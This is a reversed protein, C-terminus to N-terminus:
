RKKRPRELLTLPAGGQYYREIALGAAATVEAHEGLTSLFVPIHRLRRNIATENVYREVAARLREGRYLIDGSLVIADLELMNLLNVLGVGLAAQEGLLRQCVVDGGHVLDVFDKWTELRPHAAQARGLVNPVSAYLEVCGRLGCECRPGRFDISTHGIEHGFGRWGAYIEDGHVIGGGVGNEVVLLVFSGFDRGRGYVREAMTLAQSNNALFVRQGFAGALEDCIRVGNWLAFHPPNLVAGAQADVPGPTSIGLWLFRGRSPRKGGLVRLLARKIDLVAREEVGVGRGAAALGGTQRQLGGPGAEAVGRSIRLGLAHAYGAELELLVARRGGASRRMEGERVIGEAILDTVILSIGARTLGTEAALDFWAAAGRRILRLVRLRNM